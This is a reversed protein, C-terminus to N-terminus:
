IYLILLILLILVILSGNKNKLVIRMNKKSYHDGHKHTFIFISNEQISDLESPDYKDYIFAGSRYPFDTYINTTGDTMFLGCNSIFKIKIENAQSFGLNSILIFVFIM